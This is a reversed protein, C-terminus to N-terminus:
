GGNKCCISRCETNCSLPKAETKPCSGAPCGCATVCADRGGNKCCISRCETNCSLPKAFPVLPSVLQTWTDEVTQASKASAHALTEKANGAHALAVTLCALTIARMFPMINGM